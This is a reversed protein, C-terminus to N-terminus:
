AVIRIPTGVPVIRRMRLIDPNSVRVCGHSVARGLLSPAYTGHIGV